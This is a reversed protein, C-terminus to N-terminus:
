AAKVLVSSDVNVTLLGGIGATTGGPYLLLCLKQGDGLSRKATVDFFTGLPHDAPDGWVSAGPPAARTMWYLPDNAELAAPTGFLLSYETAQAVQNIVGEAIQATVVALYMEFSDQLWAATTEWTVRVITRLVTCMTMADVEAASLVDILTLDANPTAKDQRIGASVKRNYTWDLGRRRRVM